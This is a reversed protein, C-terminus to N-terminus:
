PHMSNSVVDSVGNCAVQPFENRFANFSEGIAIEKPYLLNRRVQGPLIDQRAPDPDFVPDEIVFDVFLRLPRTNSHRGGASIM